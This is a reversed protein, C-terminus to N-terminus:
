RSTVSGLDPTLAALKSCAVATTTAHWMAARTQPGYVGDVPIGKARQVNRVARETLDGYIGDARLGAGHCYNLSRQLARVAAGQNGNGLQAVVSVLVSRPTRTWFLGVLVVIM